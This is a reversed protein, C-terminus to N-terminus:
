HTTAARKTRTMQLAVIPFAELLEDPSLPEIGQDLCVRVYRRYLGDFGGDKRTEMREIGREIGHLRRRM